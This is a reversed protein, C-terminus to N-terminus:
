TGGTVISGAFDESSNQTLFEDKFWCDFFCNRIPKRGEASLHGRVIELLGISELAAFHQGIRVPGRWAKPQLLVTAHQAHQGTRRILELGHEDILHQRAERFLTQQEIALGIHL